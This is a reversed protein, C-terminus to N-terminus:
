SIICHRLNRSYSETRRLEIVTAVCSGRTGCCMCLADWIRRNSVLKFSM